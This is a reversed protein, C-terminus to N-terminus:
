FYSAFIFLFCCNRSITPYESGTRATMEITDTDDTLTYSSSSVINGYADPGIDAENWGDPLLRRVSNKRLVRDSHVGRLLSNVALRDPMEDKAPEYFYNYGQLRLATTNTHDITSDFIPTNSPKISTDIEVDEKASESHEIPTGDSKENIYMKSAAELTTDYEELTALLDLSLDDTLVSQGFSKKLFSIMRHYLGVGDANISKSAVALDIPMVDHAKAQEVDHASPPILPKDEIQEYSLTSESESASVPSTNERDLFGVVRDKSSKPTPIHKTSTDDDDDNAKLVSKEDNDINASSVQNRPFSGTPNSDSEQYLYMLSAAELTTDYEDPTATNDSSVDDFLSLQGFSKKKLFTVIRGYLGVVDHNLSLSFPETLLQVIRDCLGAAQVDSEVWNDKTGRVQKPNHNHISSSILAKDGFNEIFSTM